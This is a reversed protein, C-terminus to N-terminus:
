YAYLATMEINDQQVESNSSHHAAGIGMQGRGTPLTAGTITSLDYSASWLPDGWQPDGNPMPGPTSGNLDLGVGGWMRAQLVPGPLLQSEVMLPNNMVLTGAGASADDAVGPQLWTVQNNAQSVSSIVARAMDYTNDAADVIVWDGVKLAHGAPLGVSTVIGNARVADTFAYNRQAASANFAGAGVPFIFGTGSAPDNAAIRAYSITTSTVASIIWTGNYTTDQVNVTIAEGVRWRTDAGAPVTLTSVNSTHSGGSVAESFLIAAGASVFGSGDLNSEWVGCSPQGFIGDWFIIARQKTADAQYRHVHPHQIIGDAPPRSAWRSRIRSFEATPVNNPLWVEHRNSTLGNGGVIRCTWRGKEFSLASDPANVDTSIVKRTWASPTAKSGISAVATSQGAIGPLTVGQNYLALLATYEADAESQTTGAGFFARRLDSITPTAMRM